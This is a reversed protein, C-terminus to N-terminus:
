STTTATCRPETGPSSRPCPKDDEQGVAVGVTFAAVLFDGAATGAPKTLVLGTGSVTQSGSSASGFGVTGPAPAALITVVQQTSGTGGVSATVTESVTYTGPATYTHVPNQDTSTTGDGFNWSWATPNGSSSDSFSVPLPAAGTTPSATFSATPSYPTAALDAHWYRRTADNSAMIVIGTSATVNQKSSTANNMNASAADRIVPTGRGAPFSPQNLPATKEYITGPAGSFSCGGSSPATAYMRIVKNQSDIMLIPRTHCDAVTGYVYNDFNGSNPNLALLEIQPASSDSLADFSTKIAAYVHGQTDAELQKLNIHDDAASPSSLAVKSTWATKADGDRHTAFYFTGTNQNSWMLGIRNNGYAAVASIDDPDLNTAGAAPLVFPTGWSTDGSTAANVYVQSGQTWTAWLAGRSDKDLTITESSVTNINLPFGTDLTYVKTAPNYSYRYLRAPLNALNAASSAAFVASAVYLKNAAGDWLVDARTSPRDDIRVGTDVWTETPRDLRYIHYTRSVTDFVDGWWSGDNWWLKSEPKEGTPADGAGNFALGVYGIDGTGAQAAQATTFWSTVMFVLAAACAATRSNFLGRRRDERAM